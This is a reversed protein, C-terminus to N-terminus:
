AISSEQASAQVPQSHGSPSVNQTTAAVSIEEIRESRDFHMRWVLSAQRSDLDFRVTDLVLQSISHEGSTYHAAALLHWGPLQMHTDTGLLGILTAMENGVLHPRAVMDPSASQYYSANFDHPLLPCRQAQWADDYTGQLGVRPAWWRATPSLGLSALPQQPDGLACNVALIQPAQLSTQGGLWAEVYQRAPKSLAKLAKSDPLWGCGAPNSDHNVWGIQGDACLKAPIQVSGGYALRYDLLVQTVPTAPGVKWGLWNKHWRRPGHLHLMKRVPGLRIGALWDTHPAAHPAVAQGTVLVDTGPKYALLDGDETVVARLPSGQEPATIQDSMCLPTQVAALTMAKGDQAFDFTARVVLVDLPQDTPGSKEFWFHPVGTPNNIVTM